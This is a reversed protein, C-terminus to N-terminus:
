AAYARLFEQMPTEYRRWGDISSRDLPRRVQATSATQVTRRSAHFDRIQPEDPLSVFALVRPIWTEPSAILGEYPVSLIREPFESTWHAHLSDMFRSFFAIDALSRSWRLGTGFHTRFCSWATAAPDRRLWLFRAAPLCHAIVGLNKAHNLTKDVIRGEAGFREDLLSLYTSGIHTWPNFETSNMVQISRPLFDSLGLAAQRFAGLEGGAHVASHATLIQELLTTGSRPMGVIFIPRASANVGSQLRGFYAASLESRTAQLLTTDSAGDYGRESATIRAGEAFAAFAGSADGCDDLAKGLAYLLTARQSPRIASSTVLGRLALLEHDDTTFRRLTTLMLWAPALDVRLEIARRLSALAAETHGMQALVEGHVLHSRSDRPTASVIRATVIKAEEMQGYRVLTAAQAYQRESDRPSQDVDARHADIALRMAGVSAAMRAVSLWDAIPRPKIEVLLRLSELVRQRDRAHFAARAASVMHHPEVKLSEGDAIDRVSHMGGM